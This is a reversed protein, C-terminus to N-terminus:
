HVRSHVDEDGDEAEAEAADQEARIALCDNLV